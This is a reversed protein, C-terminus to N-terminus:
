RPEAAPVPQPRLMDRELGVGPVALLDLIHQPRPEPRLRFLPTVLVAFPHLRIEARPTNRRKVVDPNLGGGKREREREKERGRECEHECGSGEVRWGARDVRWLLRQGTWIRCNGAVFPVKRQLFPAKAHVAAGGQMCVLMEVREACM